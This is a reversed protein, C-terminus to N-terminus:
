FNTMSQFRELDFLKNLADIEIKHILTQCLSLYEFVMEKLFYCEQYSLIKNLLLFVKPSVVFPTEIDRV